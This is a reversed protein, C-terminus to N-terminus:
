QKILCIKKLTKSIHLTVTGVIILNVIWNLAKKLMNRKEKITETINHKLTVFDLLVDFLNDYVHICIKSVQLTQDPIRSCNYVVVPEQKCPQLVWLRHGSDFSIDWPEESAAMKNDQCIRCAQDSTDIRYFTIFKSRHIKSYVYKIQNLSRAYALSLIDQSARRPLRESESM